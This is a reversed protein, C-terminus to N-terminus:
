AAEKVPRDTRVWAAGRLSTAMIMPVRTLKWVIYFPVSAIARLDRLPSSGAAIAACLHLLLVALGLLGIGRFVGAGAFAAFALLLAHFSLPLLLLDLLPELCEMRGALARAMLRPAFERIMRLRGGEWRARQTSRARGQAPMLGNVQVDHLFEVRIGADLLELHYELDEVVSKAVYPVAELTGRSLAFGNGLIGVSQGHRQRGSPRIKNFARLSLDMLRTASSQDPNAVLYVCQVAKAGRSFARRFHDVFGVPVISDADLVVFADYGRRLYHFAFELAFGKGRRTDDNREMVSVGKARAISATQDTCNDAVVFVDCPSESAGSALLSDLCVSIVDQENHAPIIVALRIIKDQGAEQKRVPLMSGLTLQALELSGPLSAFAAGAALSNLITAFNM